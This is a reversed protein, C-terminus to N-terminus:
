RNGGRLSRAVTRDGVEDHRIYHPGVCEPVLDFKGEHWVREWLGFLVTEDTM